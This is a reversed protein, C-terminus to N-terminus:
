PVLIARYFRFPLNTAGPDDFQITGNFNTMTALNAWTVIDASADIEYVSGLEGSLLLRFGERGEFGPTTPTSLFNRRSFNAVVTRSQTMSVILPNQAGSADGTWGLFVQNTGPSATLTVAAGASYSNSRPSASVTGEGDVSLNLSYQGAPLSAFLSSVIPNANTITFALPNVNGFASNGWVGFYYGPQPTATIQATVGFPYLPLAPRVALTGQGAVTTRLTTGFVAQIKKNRTMTVTVNTNGSNADGQWYLFSWGAVPTATLSVTTGDYYSAANPSVTISGGGATSKTLTYLESRFLVIPDLEGADDFDASYSIARLICSQTVTLPQTYEPSLFSPQSGDLTYFISGNSFYSQLAFTTSSIFVLRNTTIVQSNATAAMYTLKLNAPSSTISTLGNSVKVLYVGQNETALNTLTLVANTAGPLPSDGFLWQFKLPPSGSAGSNFSVSTEVRANLNTPQTSLYPPYPGPCKGASWAKYISQIEAASLPRNYLAAEDIAGNFSVPGSPSGAPRYGIYADSATRATFGGLFTEQVLSGNAYFRAFGSLRDYTLAVHSFVNAVIVGNTSQITPNGGVTNFLAAYLAGPGTVNIWIHVGFSNNLAWEFVPRASLDTPRIWAEVTFGNGSGVDLSPSAPIRVTTSGVINFAQGVKGTTYSPSLIETPNTGAADTGNREAPWWGVMGVPASVCTPITFIYRDSDGFMSFDASYARVRVTASQSVVFSNTYRTSFYDPDSGDLTYFVSGNTFYSQISVTIPGDLIYSGGAIKQSNTYVEAAIIKLNAPASTISGVGNAAVAFYDGGQSFALNTLTLTANTAGSIPSGNFLWQLTIPQTGFVSVSWSVSGTLISLQNTLPSRFSPPSNTVPCKGDSDVNFLSQIETQTLARSYLSLEDIGGAFYFAGGPSSQSRAGLYVDAAATKVSINGLSAQQVLAGNLFIRALGSVKDYTLAVHQYSNMTLLGGATQMTHAGGTSDYLGAYLCGANQFNVWFHLGIGGSPAWEVIPRSAQDVPNIWGEITFGPYQGLDLSPAAPIRVNGSGNFLFAQGVKGPGYAAGNEFIGNNNSGGADNADGEARWWSVLGSPSTLCTGELTREASRSNGGMLFLGLLLILSKSFDALRLFSISQRVSMKRKSSSDHRLASLFPLM